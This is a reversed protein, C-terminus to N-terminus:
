SLCDWEADFFHIILIGSRMLEMEAVVAARMEVMAEVVMEEVAEEEEAAKELREIGAIAPDLKSIIIEGQHVGQKVM